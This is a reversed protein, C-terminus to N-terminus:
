INAICLNNRIGDAVPHRQDLPELIAIVNPTGYLTEVCEANSTLRRLARAAPWHRAGHRRLLEQGADPDGVPLTTYLVGATPECRTGRGLCELVRDTFVEAL